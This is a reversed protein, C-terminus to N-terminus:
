AFVAATVPQCVYPFALAIASAGLGLGTVVIRKIPFKDAWPNRASAEFERDLLNPAVPLGHSSATNVRLRNTRKARIAVEESADWFDPFSM